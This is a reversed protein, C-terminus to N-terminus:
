SPTAIDADGQVKHVTRVLECNMYDFLWLDTMEQGDADLSRTVVQWGKSSVDFRVRKSDSVGVTDENEIVKKSCGCMVTAVMLLVIAKKM